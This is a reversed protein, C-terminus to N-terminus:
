HARSIVQFTKMYLQQSASKGSVVMYYIGSMWQSVDISVMKDATSIAYVTQGVMNKVRILAPKEMDYMKINLKESAPNPYVALGDEITLENAFTAVDFKIVWGDADGQMGLVDGDDSFAGGVLMGSPLMAYCYEVEAGGLATEWLLTGDAAIHIFWYERTKGTENVVDGDTSLTSGSLFYGGDAASIAGRHFQERKVGGYIGQWQIAADQDLKVAWFDYDGHWSGKDVPITPDQTDGFAIFGGDATAWADLFTEQNAQGYVKSSIVNGSPDTVLMWADKGEVNLGALDGDTSTTEGFMAINGNDLLIAKYLDDDGTGGYIKNQIINGSSNIIFVWADFLDPDENSPVDGNQSTSRSMCLYKNGPLELLFRPVDFNTGGFSRSWVIEGNTDLKVTWADSSGHHGTVDFDDSWSETQFLYGGDSTQIIKSNPNGEEVSGGYCKQWLISSDPAMKIVWSDHKGKLSCTVDGGLSDALGLMIYNGDATPYIDQMIDNGPGGFTKQWAISPAQAFCFKTSIFLPFVFILHRFFINM